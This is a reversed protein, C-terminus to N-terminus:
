RSEQQAPPDEAPPDEAPRAHATGHPRRPADQGSHAIFDDLMRNLLAALQHLDAPAWRALADGIGQRAQAAVRGSAAEGASTLEVLRARSDAPDPVRELYGTDTLKQLQRTIHPAEVGLADALEGPRSPGAASLQRLVVVAARELPVGAAATIEDNRRTRTLLYALRGLAQELHAVDAAAAAAAAAAHGGAHVAPGSESETV